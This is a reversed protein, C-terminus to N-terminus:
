DTLHIRGNEGSLGLKKLHQGLVGRPGELNLYLVDGGAPINFGLFTKREAVAVALTRALSSKGYKPKASLMSVGVELLLGEVLCPVREPTTISVNFGDHVEFPFIKPPAKENTM